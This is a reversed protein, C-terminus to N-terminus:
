QQNDHCRLKVLARGTSRHAMNVMQIAAHDSSTSVESLFEVQTLNATLGAAAMADVVQQTSIAFRQASPSATAAMPLWLVMLGAFKSLRALKPMLMSNTASIPSTRCCRTQPLSLGLTPSM